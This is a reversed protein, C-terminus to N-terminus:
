QPSHYAGEIVALEAGPIAAVLQPARDVLPHDRSGAIVTTECTVRGLADFLPRSELTLLERGLAALAYPDFSSALTIRQERWGPPVVADILDDEPGRMTAYIEPIGDAPDFSAFFSDYLAQMEPDAASFGGATTDMLILSRVLDPRRLVAEMAIRGGMSHGLLHVPGRAAEELWAVFDSTLEDISYGPSGPPGDAGAVASQGLKTSAGHGRHDLAVVPRSRALEPIVLAFDWASGSFGHCLVLPTAEARGDAWRDWALEVGRIHARRTLEFTPM